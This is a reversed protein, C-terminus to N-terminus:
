PLIFVSPIVLVAIRDKIKATAAGDQASCCCSCSCCPVGCWASFFACGSFDALGAALGAARCCLPELGCVVFCRGGSLPALGPSLLVCYRVMGLRCSLHVMGAASANGLIAVAGIESLLVGKADALAVVPVVVEM